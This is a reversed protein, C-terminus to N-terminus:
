HETADGSKTDPQKADPQKDDSQKKDPQEASEELKQYFEKLGTDSAIAQKLKQDVTNLLNQVKDYQMANDTFDQLEKDLEGLYVVYSGDATETVYLSLLGPAPTDINLFKVESYVFVLYGGEQSSKMTYCSINQYGEIYESRKRLNDEEIHSIDSVLNSLAEMDCRVRADLYEKVLENVEPYRNEELEYTVEEHGTDSALTQEKNSSASQKAPKKPSIGISLTICGILMTGMMITLMTKRYKIKM